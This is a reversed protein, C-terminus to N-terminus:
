ISRPPGTSFKDFWDYIYKLWDSVVRGDSGNLKMLRDICEEKSTDVFIERAGLMKGLRQRESILPYGGIVYANNWKGRRMRVMDILTDRIGFVVSNLRKPKVYRDCGSVMQWINDVNVILDGECRVENVWTSKGSLPAGYVLYVEKQRYGINNEFKDHIKNHCVHHVLQINDPNLSVKVDNVNGETLYENCHHAIIDYAKVIPKGCHECIVQGEDNLRDNIVVQRFAIWEKSRYFSSLNFM